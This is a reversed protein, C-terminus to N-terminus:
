SNTGFSSVSVASFKTHALLFESNFVESGSAKLPKALKGPLSKLHESFEEPTMEQNRISTTPVFKRDAIGLQGLM